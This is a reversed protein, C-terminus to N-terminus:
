VTFAPLKTHTVFKRVAIPAVKVRIQPLALQWGVQPPPAPPPTWIKCKKRARQSISWKVRNLPPRIQVLFTQADRSSM